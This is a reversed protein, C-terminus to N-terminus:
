AARGADAFETMIDAVSRISDIGRVSKGAQWYDQPTSPDLSARRLLMASRVAYFMRMWHKTRRGRLMRRALPGASTGVRRVYDTNIVALPVGTVRESLVIDSEKARVIADKYTQSATCETTAIFRTGLQVGDYGLRLAHVFENATGIGGACVLPLGLPALEDILQEPTKPGAHGGARSNVAILGHVGSELAKDAWKRETVDHYVFGGVQAVRDVVWRPKGLSTVFFRVGEELATELWAVMRERYVRSSSELLVNMGIPKSTLKRIFHLGPRFEHRHVYTLSTPQVIGIGGSESVAAVLEPNSCPFMAGGIIPLAVGADRTLRTNLLADSM